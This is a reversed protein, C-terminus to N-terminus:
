NCSFYTFCLCSVVSMAMVGTDWGKIVQGVGIQFQFPTGLNNRLLANTGILIGLKNMVDTYRVETEARISNKAM